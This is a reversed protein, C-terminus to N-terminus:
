PRWIGSSKHLHPEIRMLLRDRIRQAARVSEQPVMERRQALYLFMDATQLGVHKHSPEFLIPPVIRTLMSSRYGGTGNAQDHTLQRHVQAEQSTEDAVVRSSADSHLRMYEDVRELVHTTCLVHPNAPYKYRANLRAVDVGRYIFVIEDLGDLCDLFQQYILGVERHRGRMVEWPGRGGMLPHGHFEVARPLGYEEALANRLAVVRENLVRWQEDPGLTAGVFYHNSRQSEDLYATWMALM